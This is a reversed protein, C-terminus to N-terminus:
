LVRLRVCDQVATSGPEDQKKEWTYKRWHRTV